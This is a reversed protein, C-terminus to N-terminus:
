VLQKRIKLTKRLHALILGEIQRVRERSLGLVAAIEEFTLRDDIDTLYRNSIIFKEREPLKEIEIKLQDKLLLIDLFISRDKHFSDESSIMDELHINNGGDSIVTSEQLSHISTNAAERLTKIFRKGVKLKASLEFDSLPGNTYELQRMKKVLYITTAPFRISSNYFYVEKLMHQIMSKKAYTLINCNKKYDFTKMSQILVMAGVTMMSYFIDDLQPHITRALSAIFDWCSDLVKECYQIDGTKQYQAVCEFQDEKSLPISLKKGLKDKYLVSEMMSSIEYNLDTTSIVM